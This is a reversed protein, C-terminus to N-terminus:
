GLQSTVSRREFTIVYLLDDRLEHKASYYKGSMAM